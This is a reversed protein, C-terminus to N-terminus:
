KNKISQIWQSIDNVEDACVSHPMPYSHWSAPYGAQMLAAYTAKGLTYPVITDETGHAIFIPIDRNAASAKKLTEDALPLYGSLAMIGGLPKPYCLGTMLAVVAGQSFGALIINTTEIGQSEEHQILLELQSISLAIGATDIKAAISLGYIDFWARMEYGQNITVPMIPANPFVFRIGLSAPLGLESVIPVFDSGDAGLGHLWIISKKPPLNTPNIEICSLSQQEKITM